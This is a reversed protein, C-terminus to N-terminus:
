KRGRNKFENIAQQKILVKSDPMDQEQVIGHKQIVMERQRKIMHAQGTNLENIKVAQEPTAVPIFIEGANGYRESLKSKEEEKRKKRQTVCWGDLLDDDEIVEEPPCESSEAINDYFQSWSILSHQERTLVDGFMKHGLKIMRWHQKWEYNKAINRISNDDICENMFYLYLKNLNIVPNYYDIHAGVCILFSLKHFFAIGDITFRDFTQKERLLEGYKNELFDIVKRKIDLQQFRTYADYLDAKANNIQEPLKELELDKEISWLQRNIMYDIMEDHSLAGYLYAQNRTKTYINTAELLDDFSPPLVEIDKDEIKLRTKGSIIKYLYYENNNM